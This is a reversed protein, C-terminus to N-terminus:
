RLNIRHSWDRGDSLTIREFGLLKVLDHFTLLNQVGPEAFLLSAWVRLTLTALVARARFLTAFVDDDLAVIILKEGAIRKAFVAYHQPAPDYSM